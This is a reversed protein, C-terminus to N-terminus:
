HGAMENRPVTVVSVALVAERTLNAFYLAPFKNSKKKRVTIRSSTAYGSNVLPLGLAPFGV